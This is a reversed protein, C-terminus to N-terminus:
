GKKNTKQAQKVIISDIIDALSIRALKAKASTEVQKYYYRLTDQINGGVICQPNTKDDVTFLHQDHEIALFVDYLSINAPDKALKPDAAGHVTTILGAKKLQSMIRRVVVPSTEVSNAINDSTLPIKGQYISIFALIHISDSFRTSIKM